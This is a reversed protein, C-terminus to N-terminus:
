MENIPLGSLLCGNFHEDGDEGAGLEGVNFSHHALLLLIEDVGALVGEVEVAPRRLHDHRVVQLRRHRVRVLVFGLQVLVEGGKRLVVTARRQRGADSTGAVLSQDFSCNLQNIPGDVRGHFLLLVIVQLPEIGCDPDGQLDVVIRVQGAPVVAASLLVFLDLPGAHPRQVRYAELQLLPGDRGDLLVPVDAQFLMVVADRHLEDPLLDVQVIVAPVDVDVVLVFADRCMRQAGLGVAVRRVGVVKGLGLLVVQLPIRFDKQVLRRRHAFRYFGVKRPYDFCSTIRLLRVLGALSDQGQPFPDALLTEHLGAAQSEHQPVVAVVGDLLDKGVPLLVHDYVLLFRRRVGNRRNGLVLVDPPFLVIRLVKGGHFDFHVLIGQLLELLHLEVPHVVGELRAQLVIAPVVHGDVLEHVHKHAVLPVLPVVPM